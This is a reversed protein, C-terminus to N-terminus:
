LAPAAHSAALAAASESDTFYCVRGADRSLCIFVGPPWTDCRTVRFNKHQVWPHAGAAGASVPWIFQCLFCRCFSSLGSFCMIKRGEQCSVLLCCISMVWEIAAHQVLLFVNLGRGLGGKSLVEQCCLFVTFM